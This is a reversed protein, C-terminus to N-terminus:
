AVAGLKNGSSATSLNKEEAQQSKLLYDEESGFAVALAEALGQYEGVGFIEYAKKTSFKADKGDISINKWDVLAGEIISRINAEFAAYNNLEENGQQKRLERFIATRANLYQPSNPARLRVRIEGIGLDKWVGNIRADQDVKLASIDM